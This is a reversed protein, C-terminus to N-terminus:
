GHGRKSSHKPNASRFPRELLFFISLIPGQYLAQIVLVVCLRGISCVKRLFVHKHKFLEPTRLFFLM